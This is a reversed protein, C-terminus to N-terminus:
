NSTWTLVDTRSISVKRNTLNRPLPTAVSIALPSESGNSHSDAPLFEIYTQVMQSRRPLQEIGPSKRGIFPMQNEPADAISQKGTQPELCKEM